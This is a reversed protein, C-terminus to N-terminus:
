FFDLNYWYQHRVISVSAIYQGHREQTEEIYIWGDLYIIKEFINTKRLSSLISFIYQLQMFKGLSVKFAWGFITFPFIFINYVTFPASSSYLVFVHDTQNLLCLEKPSLTLLGVHRPNAIFQQPSISNSIGIKM